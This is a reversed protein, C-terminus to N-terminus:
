TPEGEAPASSSAPPRDISITVEEVQVLAWDLNQIVYEAVAADGKENRWYDRHARITDECEKLAERWRPTERAREPLLAEAAEARALATEYLARMLRLQVELDPTEARPAESGSGEAPTQTGGCNTRTCLRPQHTLAQVFSEFGCRDCIYALMTYEETM